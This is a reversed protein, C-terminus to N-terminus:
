GDAHDFYRVQWKLRMTVTFGYSDMGKSRLLVPRGLRTRGRWYIDPGFAKPWFAGSHETSVHHISSKEYRENGLHLQM